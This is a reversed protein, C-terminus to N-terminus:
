RAPIVIEEGLPLLEADQLIDPRNAEFLEMYRDESGLYRKAISRLTDGDRVRHRRTPPEEVDYDSQVETEDETAAAEVTSKMRPQYHTALDTPAADGDLHNNGRIEPLMVLSESAREREVLEDDPSPEVLPLVQLPVAARLPLVKPQAVTARETKVNRTRRFPLAALCGLSLIVLVLTTSKPRRM